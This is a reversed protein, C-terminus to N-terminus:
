ATDQRLICVAARGGQEGPQAQFLVRGAVLVDVTGTLAVPLVDGASLAILRNLPMEPQCLRVSVNLPVSLVAQELRERWTRDEEIQDSQLRSRLLSSIPKLLQMPYVVDIRATDGGPLQVTFRCDVVMEDGDAFTAFQTSEERGALTMAVPMVDRWAVQMAQMLRDTVLEIVRQETGSFEAQTAPTAVPGGGYFANTLVSVLRHPLVMMQNGRLEEMHWVTLSVPNAQTRRFEDFSMLEPPHSTIRPMFRLMPVFAHRAIRCFRENIARLGFFDALGTVDGSGLAFPRVERAERPDIGAPAGVLATLVSSPIRSMLSM